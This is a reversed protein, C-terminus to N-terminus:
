NAVSHLTSWSKGGNNTQFLNFNNQAEKIIVWGTQANLFALESV